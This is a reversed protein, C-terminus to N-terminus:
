RMMPPTTYITRRFTTGDASPARTAPCCRSIDPKLAADIFFDRVSGDPHLNFAFVFDGREFSLLQRRQDFGTCVADGGSLLKNEKALWIIAKDFDGLQRFRLTEDDALSWQRRAYEYSWGNGERPFDIWDPHGFENGMFNLYGEGGACLVLLRILKHMAMAYQVTINEDCKRMGYYMQAGALRFMITQDGVLAQDHSEAYAIRKEGNRHALLEWTLQSLDWEGYKKERITRIFYDPLGMSLRYDFGIGGDKVPVCLGPMASVDEAILVSNPKLQKVLQTALQLYTIADVDTNVSFYSKMGTFATGLGHDQYLMSGVGDFRFGDFHYEEIWFKLNSLLFHIVGNKGYDFVKSDWAPHEGADGDKFFQYNTGDFCNIGENKNKVAHSHVLDLLVSLGLEHAKNVLYKLDDPTGFRSSAAFFNSVHYGFSGYYPHEMVAMLQVTNYGDDCIRPLIHDAFERYTGVRRDETAMGVHAEYIIPAINRGPDFGGDRWTFSYPPDWVAACFVPSNEDQRVYNAYLPIREREGDAGKVCVKYNSLHHITDRGPIYVEWSGNDLRHMRHSERNWGNFDGVLSMAEAAPAWERYVWGDGTKHLGYFHHGNAYDKLMQGPSLLEKTKRDLRLMRETIENEYEKLEPQADIIKWSM